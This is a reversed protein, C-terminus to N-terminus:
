QRLASSLNKEIPSLDWWWWCWWLEVEFEMLREELYVCLLTFAICEMCVYSRSFVGLCVEGLLMVTCLSRGGLFGTGENRRM